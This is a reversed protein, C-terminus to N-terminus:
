NKGGLFSPARLGVQGEQRRRGGDPRRPPQRRHLDAPRDEPRHRQGLHDEHRVPLRQAAQRQTADICTSSATATPRAAAQRRATWHRLHRVRQRRRLGLRRQPTSQYHWKIKGTKRRDGVRRARTCTTARACTATGRRRTAPASTPSAPRRTTPAASGPPPAAPRGCTARGPRAPRAPSATRTSRQRRTTAYGMHGEVTPRSGSWSAPRRRRAGRRPRRRRVRRRVRRHAAPRRRHDARRDGFLGGPLRRDEQKWVM